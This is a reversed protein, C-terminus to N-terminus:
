PASKQGSNVPNQPSNDYEWLRFIDWIIDDNLIRYEIQNSQINNMNKSTPASKPTSFLNHQRSPHQNVQAIDFEMSQSINESIQSTFARARLVATLEDDIHVIEVPIQSFAVISNDPIMTNVISELGNGCVEFRKPKKSNSKRNKKTTKSGTLSFLRAIGYYIEFDSDRGSKSCNKEEKNRKTEKNGSFQKSQASHGSDCEKQSTTQADFSWDMGMKIQERNEVPNSILFDVRSNFEDDFQVVASPIIAWGSMPVKEQDEGLGAENSMEETSHTSICLATSANESEYPQASLECSCDSGYKVLEQNYLTESSKNPIEACVM